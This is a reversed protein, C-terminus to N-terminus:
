SADKRNHWYWSRRTQPPLATGEPASYPPFVVKPMSWHRGDPSTAVLTHGPPRHEGVPNSLYELYFLGNWYAIMPAHNYTWGFGDGMEPHTRNARMVQINEVGIAPRLRGDHRDLDVHVGGVYRVPELFSGTQAASPLSPSFILWVSVTLMFGRSLRLM